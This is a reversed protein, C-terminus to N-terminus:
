CYKLFLYLDDNRDFGINLHFIHNKMYFTVFSSVFDVFCIQYMKLLNKSAFLFYQSTNNDNQFDNYTCLTYNNLLYNKTQFVISFYVKHYHRKIQPPPYFTAKLPFLPFLLLINYTTFMYIISQPCIHVVYKFQMFIVQLFTIKPHFM